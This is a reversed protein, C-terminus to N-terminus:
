TQVTGVQNVQNQGINIQTIEPTRSALRRVRALTECARLFRRQSASLRKEWYIGQQISLKGMSQTFICEVWYLRLWCVLVQEILMKELPSADPYGHDAKMQKLGTELSVKLAFSAKGEGAMLKLMHTIANRPLDGHLVWAAPVDKLMKEFKKEDQKTGKGTAVRDLLDCAQEKQEQTLEVREKRWTGKHKHHGTAQLAARTIAGVQRCLDDIQRDISAQEEIEAQLKLRELRREEQTLRDLNAALEAILGFGVYETKCTGDQWHQRYYYGKVWM